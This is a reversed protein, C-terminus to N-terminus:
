TTVRCYSRFLGKDRTRTATATEKDMNAYKKENRCFRYKLSSM